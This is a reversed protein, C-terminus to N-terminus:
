SWLTMKEQRQPFRSNVRTTVAVELRRKVKVRAAAKGGLLRDGIREVEGVYFHRSGRM